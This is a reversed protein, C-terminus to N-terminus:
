NTIEKKEKRFMALMAWSVMWVLLGGLIALTISGYVYQLMNDKVTEFTIGNSFVLDHSTQGM